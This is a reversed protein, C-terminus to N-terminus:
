LAMYCLASNNYVIMAVLQSQERDMLFYQPNSFFRMEPEARPKQLFTYFVACPTTKHRFFPLFQRRQGTPSVPIKDLTPFRLVTGRNSWLGLIQAQFGYPKSNWPFKSNNGLFTLWPLPVIIQKINAHKMRLLKWISDLHSCIKLNGMIKALKNTMERSMYPICYWLM